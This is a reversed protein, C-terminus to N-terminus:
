LRFRERAGIKQRRVVRTSKWTARAYHATSRNRPSRLMIIKMKRLKEETKEQPGVQSVMEYVFYLVIFRVLSVFVQISFSCLM